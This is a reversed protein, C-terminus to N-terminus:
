RSTKNPEKEFENIKLFLQINKFLRELQQFLSEPGKAVGEPEAQLPLKQKQSSNIETMYTSEDYKM